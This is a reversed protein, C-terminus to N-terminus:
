EGTHQAYWQESDLEWDGTLMPYREQLTGFHLQEIYENYLTNKEHLSLPRTRQKKFTNEWNMGFTTHDVSLPRPSDGKGNSM